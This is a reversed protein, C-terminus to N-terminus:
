QHQRFVMDLHLKRDVRFRMLNHERGSSLQNYNERSNNKKHLECDM